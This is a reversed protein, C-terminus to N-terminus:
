PCLPSIANLQELVNVVPQEFRDNFAFYVVDNPAIMATVGSVGFMTPVQGDCGWASLPYGWMGNNYSWDYYNMPAGTDSPDEFLTEALRDSHLISQGGVSGGDAIFRSIRAMGQPTFLMGYGGFATGNNQGGNEWTRLTHFSDPSIGAPRYINDVAFLFSDQWETQEQVLLADMAAALIQYHPTLYVTRVGPEEQYPFLFSSELREDLTFETFFTGMYDDAQNAVRYHGTTMDLLHELTVGEWRGNADATPGPLLDAVLQQYPNVDLKKALAAMTLGGYLTKALSYSPLAITECFAYTGYRTPCEALYLSGNVWVGRATQEDLTLYQELGALSVGPYDIPLQELPQVPYRQELEVLFDERIQDAQEPEGPIYTATSQGWLDFIHWPCTEQTIQYRVQSVSDEDYLFTMVGNQICNEVKFTLAFPFAARSMGHDEETSWTLGPQVILDWYLDDTVLRGRQTPILHRGCSTFELDIDPLDSDTQGPSIWDDAFLTEMRAASEDHLTLRGEFRNLPGPADQPMAFADESIPSEPSVSSMLTDFSLLAPAMGDPNGEQDLGCADSDVPESPWKGTDDSDTASDETRNAMCGVFLVSLVVFRRRM